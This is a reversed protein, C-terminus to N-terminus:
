IPCDPAPGNKYLYSLIYTIDLINISGSNNVDASQYPDPAPGSKYLFSILFTIDLLNINGNGNADGCLFSPEIVYTKIPDSFSSWQNEADRARVKYYYEGVPKEEFYYVTDTIESSVSITSEFGELPSIDDVYFGEEAVYGDTRYTFRIYVQQGAFDALSYLGQVWGGSSGTIGYGLNYGHPNTGSSLNGDIASFSVGDTSIEVYAYDWDDEIDYYTHFKLTDDAGVTIPELTQLYRNLSNGSGSYFSTSPSYYRAGSLTYGNTSWRDLNMASDVMGTLRNQMEVLEFHVPPNLTDEIHWSVGYGNSYVTDPLYPMPTLPPLLVYVNGVIDAMLINPQLNESVLDPIREVAPWFNDEYSGVELTLAFCKDKLTQEGYGWDDSGGNVTYLVEWSTGPTYGNFSAASDGLAAFIDHDPTYIEDYSWPYLVYNGYSHYNITMLFDHALIFDKLNQTEPESFPASGRYTPDSPTPSSGEDDYGWEYGFNRNLDVGYSGDGNNRRNKRWMGGGDPDTVENYHYGDPNLLPIFWMERNDVLFAAEPDTKYNNTLYDMFYFLVEPTIVERCHIAAAFLIEPEDENIEPNDSIKVAWIDRGEITQGISIKQSVLTPHDAIIGDLYSIIENLTKYGGMDKDKPLRSQLFYTIDEIVIETKFGLAEIKDIQGADTVIEIFDDGRYVIDLGMGLLSDLNERSDIRIRAQLYKIDGANSSGFLFILM